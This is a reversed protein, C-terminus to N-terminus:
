FDNFRSEFATKALVILALTIVFILTAWDKNAIIRYHLELAIM